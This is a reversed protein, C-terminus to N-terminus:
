FIMKFQNMLSSIKNLIYIDKRLYVTIILKILICFQMFHTFYFKLTEKLIQGLSFIFWKFVHNTM